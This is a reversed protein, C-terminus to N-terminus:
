NQGIEVVASSAASDYSAEVLRLTRVNEAGSTECDVEGRLAAALHVQCDVISAHVQAYRPDAWPYYPPVVRRAHTGSKTTVRLWGDAALEITGLRGEVLALTEPFRHQEYPNQAYSMACTVTAGSPYGLMVTAVDEGAISGNVRMTRAYLRTPEGFLYRATDLLHTGLDALIFRSEARLFPQNAFVDFDSMFDLRARFVEGIVGTELAEGLARLPAQWRWNENVLLATGAAGATACMAEAQALTPALPKQVVVARRHQAALAALEAHSGVDTIIDVFDIGPAACAEEPTDFVRAVGHVRAFTEAKERTRNWVGVCELGPVERWGALQYRAWFGTGLIVFRLPTPSANMIFAVEAEEYRWLRGCRM